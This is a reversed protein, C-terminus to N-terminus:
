EMKSRITNLFSYEKKNDEESAQYQNTYRVNQTPTSNKLNEFKGVMAQYTADISELASVSEKMLEDAKAQKNDETVLELKISAQVIREVLPKKQSAEFNATLEDLKKKENMLTEENAKKQAKMENLEDDKKKIEEQAQKAVKELREITKKDDDNSSMILKSSDNRTKLSEQNSSNDGQKAEQSNDKVEVNPIEVCSLGGPKKTCTTAQTDDSASVNALHALCTKADGTCRGRIQAKVNGFAPKKVGANHNVLFKTIVVRGDSLQMEETARMSPSVFNVQNDQFMKIAIPDFIKAVTYARQTKEDFGAEIIDGVRWREQMTIMDEGQTPDPNPHGFSDMIIFPATKGGPFRTDLATKMDRKLAEKTVGWRNLNFTSDAFFAKIYFGDEGKFNEVVDYARPEKMLETRTLNNQSEQVVEASKNNNPL